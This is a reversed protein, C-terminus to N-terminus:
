APVNSFYYKELRLKLRLEGKQLNANAIMRKLNEDKCKSLALNLEGIYLKKKLLFDNGKEDLKVEEVYKLERLEGNDKRIFFRDKLQSDYYNYLSISGSIYHQLFVVIENGEDGVITASEYTAGNNLTLKKVEFPTYVTQKSGQTLEVNFGNTAMVLNVPGSLTENNNLVLTGTQKGTQANLQISLLICFLLQITSLTIKM